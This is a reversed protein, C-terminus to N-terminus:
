TKHLQSQSINHYTFVPNDFSTRKCLIFIVFLKRRNQTSRLTEKQVSDTWTHVVLRDVEVVFRRLKLHPLALSHCSTEFRIYQLHCRM